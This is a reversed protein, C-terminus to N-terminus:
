NSVLKYFGLDDSVRSKKPLSNLEYKSDIVARHKILLEVLEAHGNGAAFHLPTRGLKDRYRADAGYKILLQILLLTEKTKFSSAM